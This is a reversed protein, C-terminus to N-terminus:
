QIDVGERQGIETRSEIMGDSPHTRIEVARTITIIYDIGISNLVILSENWCYYKLILRHSRNLIWYIEDLWDFKMSLKSSQKNVREKYHEENFTKM